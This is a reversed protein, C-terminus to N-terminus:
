FRDAAAQAAALFASIHAGDVLAHHVHVSVAMNGGGAADPVFRGWNIRPICDDANFFPHDCATFDTWPLCSLFAVADDGDVGPVQAGSAQTADLTARAQPAFEAFDPQWDLYSFGLRGDDFRLTTSLRLRDHQVAGAGRIRTCFEPVAHLATGFLHLCALYPSFGPEARRLIASVDLRASLGYQPQAVRRFLAFTERRPWSDM